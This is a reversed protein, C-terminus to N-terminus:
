LTSFAALINHPKMPTYTVLLYIYEALFKKDHYPYGMAHVLEHIMVLVDRQGKALEIETGDCWSYLENGHSIGPGFSICPLPKEIKEERWILEALEILTGIPRQRTLPKFTRNHYMWEELAYLKRTNVMERHQKKMHEVIALFSKIL